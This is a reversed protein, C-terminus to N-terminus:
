KNMSYTAIAYTMGDDLPVCRLWEGGIQMIDVDISTSPSISIINLDISGDENLPVLGYNTNIPTKSTNIENAYPKLHFYRM